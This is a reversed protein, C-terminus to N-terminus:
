KGRALALRLLEKELDALSDYPLPALPAGELIARLGANKFAGPAFVALEKCLVRFNVQSSYTKKEKLGSFDFDDSSVRLRATNDSLVLDLYFALEFGKVEKNTEKSKGMGIPLGTAAMIGLRFAKEGVSPGETTKITKSFTEKIPAAALVAINEPRATYAAAEDTFVAAGAEFVVKKVKQAAPLPFKETEPIKATRVGFEGCRRVLDDAAAEALGEGLV